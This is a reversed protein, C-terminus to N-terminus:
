IENSRNIYEHLENELVESDSEKQEQTQWPQSEYNEVLEDQSQQYFNPETM